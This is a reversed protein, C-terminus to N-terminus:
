EDFYHYEVQINYQEMIFSRDFGVNHGIVVKKQSGALFSSHEKPASELPILDKMRPNKTWRFKDTLVAESCWSYRLVYYM